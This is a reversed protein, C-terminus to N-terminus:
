IDFESAKVGKIFATWEDRTFHVTKRTPDNSNRVAVGQPKIAVAVCVNIIGGPNTFSSKKFDSDVTRFSFRKM